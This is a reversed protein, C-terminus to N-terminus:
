NIVKEQKLRELDSADYGLRTLVDTTHAGVEPPAPLGLQVPVGPFRVLHGTQLLNGWISHRLSATFGLRRAEPDRLAEARTRVASSCINAGCLKRITEERTQPRIWNSIAAAVNEERRQSSDDVGVLSLLSLWEDSDSAAVLVWGDAAQYLRYGADIGYDDNDLRSEPAKGGAVYRDHQFTTAIAAMSTRAWLRSSGGQRSVLGALAMLAYFQSSLNDFPWPGPVVPSDVSGQSTSLGTVAQIALDIVPKDAWPGSWGFGSSGIYVLESNREHLSSPEINIRKLTSPRLNTFLVDSEMILKDLIEQGEPKDAALALCDKGRNVTSFALGFGRFPDGNRAEVKTVTAGMDGLIRSAIPGAAYTAMDLVKVGALPASPSSGNPTIERPAWAALLQGWEDQDPDPAANPTWDNDGFKLSVGPIQITGLVPDNVEVVMGNAVNQPHNLWEERTLVPGCIMDYSDLLEIWQDAPRKSFEAILLAKLAPEDDPSIHPSEAYREDVALDPRDLAMCLRAFFMSNPCGVYFWKRDSGQFLRSTPNWGTPDDTWNFPQEASEIAIMNFLQMAYGGALWSVEIEQGVGSRGRAYLAACSGVAAMTGAGYVGEPQEIFGPGGRQTVMTSLIGTYADALRADRGCAMVPFDNPFPPMNCRIHHGRAPVLDGLDADTVIVIDAGDALRRFDRHPSDAKVQRKGRNLSRESTLPVKCQGSDIRVVDAGLDSLLMGAFLGSTERSAEVVRVGELPGTM